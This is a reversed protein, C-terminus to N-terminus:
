IFVSNYSYVFDFTNDEYPLKTMDGLVVNLVQGNAEGYSNARKVQDENFEIGYTNFGHSKFLSLPPKSGGAGCDLVKGEGESVEANCYELFRYLPTHKFVTKELTMVEM